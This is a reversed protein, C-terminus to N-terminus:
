RIMTMKHTQDFGPMDLRYFYVGSPAENGHDDLGDWIAVREGGVERGQVLSRVLRGQVLSRVLRGEVDFIGLSM